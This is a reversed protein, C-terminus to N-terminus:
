PGISRLPRAPTLDSREPRRFRTEELRARLQERSVGVEGPKERRDHQVPAEHRRRVAYRAVDAAWSLGLEGTVRRGNSGGLDEIRLDEVCRPREIRAHAGSVGGVIACDICRGRTTRSGEFPDM